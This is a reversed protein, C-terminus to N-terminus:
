FCAKCFSFTDAVTNYQIVIKNNDIKQYYYSSLRRLFLLVFLCSCYMGYKEKTVHLVSFFVM